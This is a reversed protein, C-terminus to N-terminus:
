SGRYTSYGYPAVLLPVHYHLDPDSVSFRVPVVSLFPLDGEVGLKSFYAGVDFLLEYTGRKLHAGELLPADLRGDANTVVSKLEHVHDGHVFLLDISLGSAPRGHMTDLIHTTLRGSLDREM